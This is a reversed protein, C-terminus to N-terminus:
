STENEQFALQLQGSYNAKNQKTLKVWTLTMQSSLSKVSFIDGYPQCTPLGTTYKRSQHNIRFVWGMTSLAVRPLHDESLLSPFGYLLLCYPANRQSKQKLEQWWAGVEEMISQSIPSYVSIFGKGWLRDNTVPTKDCCFSHQDLSHDARNEYYM